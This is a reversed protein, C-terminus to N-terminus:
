QLSTVALGCTKDALCMGDCSEFKEDVWGFWGLCEYLCVILWEAFGVIWLPLCTKRERRRM